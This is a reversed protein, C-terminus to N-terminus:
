LSAVGRILTLLTSDEGLTQTGERVESLSLKLNLSCISAPACSTLNMNSIAIVAFYYAWYAKRKEEVNRSKQLTM